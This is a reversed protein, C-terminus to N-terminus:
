LGDDSSSRVTSFVLLLLQPPLFRRHLRALLVGPHHYVIIILALCVYGMCLLRATHFDAEPIKYNRARLNACTAIVRMQEDIDKDFEIPLLM